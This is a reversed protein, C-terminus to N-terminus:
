KVCEQNLNEEPEWTSEYPSCDAWDILFEKGKFMLGIKNCLTLIM